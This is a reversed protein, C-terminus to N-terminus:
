QARITVRMTGSGSMAARMGSCPKCTKTVSVSIEGYPWDEATPSGTKITYVLDTTTQMKGTAGGTFSVTVSIIDIQEPIIVWESFGPADLNIEIEFARPEGRSYETKAVQLNKTEM